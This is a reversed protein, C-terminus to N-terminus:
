PMMGWLVLHAAAEDVSRVVAYDMPCQNTAFKEVWAEFEVQEKTQSNDPTKVEIFGFGEAGIALLDPTGREYGMDRRRAARRVQEAGGPLEGNIAILKAGPVLRPRCFRVIAIQLEQEPAGNRRKGRAPVLRGKATLELGEPIVSM